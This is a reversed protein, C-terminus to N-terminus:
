LAILGSVIIPGSTKSNVTDVTWAQEGGRREGSEQRVEKCGDTQTRGRRGPWRAAGRVARCVEFLLQVEDWQQGLPGAWELCGMLRASVWENRERGRSLCASVCVDM